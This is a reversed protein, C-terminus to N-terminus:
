VYVVKCLAYKLSVAGIKYQITVGFGKYFLLFDLTSGIFIMLFALNKLSKHYLAKVPSVVLLRCFSQWLAAANNVYYRGDPFYIFDRVAWFNLM